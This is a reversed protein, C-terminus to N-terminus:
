LVRHLWGFTDEARGYQIDVLAQRIEQTVPGAEGDVSSDVEGESWTLRGVPTVVAATGCAFVETIRGSRVGDRWEDISFRREEVKHGLTGALEMISSRTVGELITGTLEPTVITGDDHVFYLNMGGLEEVYRREIADLFVVQDFGKDIAEQQPALSSAYNGGTKAAGMGGIAARTHHEAVLLSVPSLGRPFYAGAPSAIVMYTVHKSPRVGLFTESAFMFPRLYLSKEGTADPVWREDVEVLSDVSAIFDDVPLEPLALRRASRALRAGNAEPRFTWVSGDAHRYAKMGEFIEQAYHLM